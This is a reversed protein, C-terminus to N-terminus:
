NWWLSERERKEETEAFVKNFNLSTHMELNEENM